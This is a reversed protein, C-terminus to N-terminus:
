EELWCIDYIITIWACFFFSDAEVTTENSMSAVLQKM